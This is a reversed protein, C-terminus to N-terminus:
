RPLLRGLLFGLGLAILASQVPHAEIREQLEDMQEQARERLENAEDLLPHEKHALAEDLAQKLREIEAELQKIAENSM